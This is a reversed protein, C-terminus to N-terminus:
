GCGTVIHSLHASFMMDSREQALSQDREFARRVIVGFQLGRQCM